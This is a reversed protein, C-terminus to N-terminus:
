PRIRGETGASAATRGSPDVRSVAKAFVMGVSLDSALGEPLATRNAARLVMRSFYGTVTREDDAVPQTVFGEHVRSEGQADTLVLSYRGSHPALAIGIRAPVPESLGAFTKVYDQLVAGVFALGYVCGRLRTAPMARLDAVFDDVTMPKPGFGSVKCEPAMPMRGRHAWWMAAALDQADGPRAYHLALASAAMMDGAQVAQAYYREAKDWSKEFCRGEEFAAGVLWAEYPNLPPNTLTRNLVECSDLRITVPSSATRDPRPLSSDYRLQREPFRYTPMPATPLRPVVGQAVAGISCAVLPIALAVEVWGRLRLM